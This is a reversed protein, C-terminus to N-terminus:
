FNEVQIQVTSTDTNSSSTVVVSSTGPLGATRTSIRLTGQTGGPTIPIASIITQAGFVWLTSNAASVGATMAGTTVQQTRPYFAPATTDVISGKAAFSRWSHGAWATGEGGIEITMALPMTEGHEYWSPRTLVWKASAGGLSTV